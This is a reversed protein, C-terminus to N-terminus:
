VAMGPFLEYLMRLGVGECRPKHRLKIDEIARKDIRLKNCLAEEDWNRAKKLIEYLSFMVEGNEECEVEIFEWFKSLNKNFRETEKETVLGKSMWQSFFRIAEFFNGAEWLEMIKGYQNNM